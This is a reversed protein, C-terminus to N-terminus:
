KRRAIIASGSRRMDDSDAPDVLRVPEHGECAVAAAYREGVDVDVLTWGALEGRVDVEDLPLRLGTGLAKLWAEKRCWLRFFQGPEAAVLAAEGATFFRRAIANADRRLDRLEVDVGLPRLGIAILALSGSHAVNFAPGDGALAPKGHADVRIDPPQGLIAALLAHLAGRACGSRPPGDLTIRHVDIV